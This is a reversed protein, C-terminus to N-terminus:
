VSYTLVPDSLSMILAMGMNQEEDVGLYNGTQLVSGECSTPVRDSRDCNIDQQFLDSRHKWM